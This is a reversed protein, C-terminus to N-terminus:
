DRERPTGDDVTIGHGMRGKAFVLRGNTNRAKDILTTTEQTDIVVVASTGPAAAVGAGVSPGV